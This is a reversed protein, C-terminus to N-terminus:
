KSECCSGEECPCLSGCGTGLLEGILEEDASALCDQYGKLYNEQAVVFVLEPFEEAVIFVIDSLSVTETGLKKVAYDVIFSKIQENKEVIVEM